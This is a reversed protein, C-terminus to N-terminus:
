LKTASTGWIVVSDANRVPIDARVGTPYSGDGMPDIITLIGDNGSTYTVSVDIDVTGAGTSGWVLFFESAAGDSAKNLRISYLGDDGTKEQSVTVTIATGGLPYSNSAEGSIQVHQGSHSMSILFTAACRPPMSFVRVYKSVTGTLTFTQTSTVTKPISNFELATEADNVVPVKGAQGLYTTPTDTQSIFTSTGSTRHQDWSAGADGTGTGNYIIWDANEWNLGDEDLATTDCIWFWGRQSPLLTEDPWVTSNPTGSTGNPTWMGQYSLSGLESFLLRDETAAVYPVKGAQGTYDSPTDTLGLFNAIQKIVPLGM